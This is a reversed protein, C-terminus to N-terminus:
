GQHVLVEPGEFTGKIGVEVEDSILHTGILTIILALGDLLSDIITSLMIVSGIISWAIPKVTISIAAVSVSAYTALCMLGAPKQDKKATLQM